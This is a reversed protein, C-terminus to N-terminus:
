ERYTPLWHNFQIFIICGWQTIKVPHNGHIVYCPSKIAFQTRHQLVKHSNFIRLNVHVIYPDFVTYTFNITTLEPFFSLFCHAICLKHLITTGPCLWTGHTEKTAINERPLQALWFLAEQLSRGHNNAWSAFLQIDVSSQLASVLLFNSFYQLNQSYQRAYSLHVFM